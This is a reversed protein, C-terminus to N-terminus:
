TAEQIRLLCDAWEEETLRRGRLQYILAVWEKETLRKTKPLWKEGLSNLATAQWWSFDDAYRVVFAPIGARDSLDKLARYSTNRFQVPAAKEHKYEVLAIAKALDYEIVLFDIDVIPVDWGWQRHRKSIREDRWGTREERVPRTDSM